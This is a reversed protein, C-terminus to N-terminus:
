LDLSLSSGPAQSWCGPEVWGTDSPHAEQCCGWGWALASTPKPSQTGTKPSKQLRPASHQSKAYFPSPFDCFLLRRKGSNEGVAGEVCDTGLPGVRCTGTGLADPEARLMSVSDGTIDASSVVTGCPVQGWGWGSSIRLDPRNVCVGCCGM